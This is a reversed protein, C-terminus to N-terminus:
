VPVIRAPSLNGLPRERHPTEARQVLNQHFPTRFHFIKGQNTNKEDAEDQCREGDGLLVGVHRAKAIDHHRDLQSM